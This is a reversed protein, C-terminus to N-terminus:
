QMEDVRSGDHASVDGPCERDDLERCFFDFKRKKVLRCKIGRKEYLFIKIDCRKAPGVATLEETCASCYAPCSQVLLRVSRCRRRRSKCDLRCVECRQALDQRGSEWEQWVQSRAPSGMHPGPLDTAWYMRANGTDGNLPRAADPNGCRHRTNVVIIRPCLMLHFM